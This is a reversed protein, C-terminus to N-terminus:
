GAERHIYRKFPSGPRPQAHWVFWTFNYRPQRERVATEEFWKPRSTLTYVGAFYPSDAFYQLRGRNKSAAADCDSRCLFAAKGGRQRIFAHMRDLFANIHSYPPNTIIENIHQPAAWGPQLFDWLQDGMGYDFADTCYVEHGAAAIVDAMHHEGAACEWIPGDFVELELLRETIWTEITFYADNEVRAYGSEGHM